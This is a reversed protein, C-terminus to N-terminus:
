GTNWQLDEISTTTTYDDFVQPEFCFEQKLRNSHVPNLLVIKQLLKFWRPTIGNFNASSFSRLQIDHYNFLYFGAAVVQSLFLINKSRLNVIDNINWPMITQLPVSGGTVRFLDTM